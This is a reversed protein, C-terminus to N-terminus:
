LLKSGSLYFKSDVVSMTGVSDKFEGVMIMAESIIGMMSASQLNTIFPARCGILNDPEFKDGINTVVTKFEDKRFEVKLKLLKTSKPVREAEQITGIHIELKKEIELFEQFTIKDKM